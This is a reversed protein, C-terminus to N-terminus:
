QVVEELPIVTENMITAFTGRATEKQILSFKVARGVMLETQITDIVTIGFRKFLKFLASDKTFTAPYDASLTYTDKDYLFEIDYCIYKFPTEKFSEGTIEGMYVGM